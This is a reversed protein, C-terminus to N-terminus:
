FLASIGTNLNLIINKLPNGEPVSEILFGSEDFASSRHSTVLVHGFEGNSVTQAGVGVLADFCLRRKREHDPIKELLNVASEYAGEAVLRFVHYEFDEM